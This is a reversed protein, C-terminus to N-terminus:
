RIRRKNAKAEAKLLNEIVKFKVIKTILDKPLLQDRSFRITGKSSDYGSLEKRFAEVGSAGPYFGIHNTHAAFYCLIGKQTFAPMRYSIKEEADPAARKIIMRLQGLKKQIDAPYSAIYEDINTPAKVTKL